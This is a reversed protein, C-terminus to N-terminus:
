IQSAIKSHPLKVLLSSGLAKLPASDLLADFKPPINGRCFCQRQPYLFPAHDLGAQFSQPSFHWLQHNELLSQRPSLFTGRNGIPIKGTKGMESQPQKQPSMDLEMSELGWVWYLPIESFFKEM